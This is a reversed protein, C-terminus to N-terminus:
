NYITKPMCIFGPPKYPFFTNLLHFIEFNVFQGKSCQDNKNMKEKWWKSSKPHHLTKIKLILYTLDLQSLHKYDQRYLSTECIKTTLENRNKLIFSKVLSCQPQSEQFYAFLSGFICLIFLELFNSVKKQQWLSWTM